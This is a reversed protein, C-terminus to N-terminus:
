LSSSAETVSWVGGRSASPTSNEISARPERTGTRRSGRGAGSRRRRRPRRGCRPRGRRRAARGSTGSRGRRREAADAADRELRPGALDAEAEEAAELRLSEVGAVDRVDLLAAGVDGVVPLAAPAVDEAEHRDAVLAERLPVDERRRVEDRDAPLEEEVLGGLVVQGAGAADPAAAEGVEERRGAPRGDLVNSIWPWYWCPREISAREIM